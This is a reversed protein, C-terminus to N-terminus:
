SHFTLTKVVVPVVSTQLLQGIDLYDGHEVKIQDICIISQSSDQTVLTQGL